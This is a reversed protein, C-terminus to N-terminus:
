ELFQVVLVRREATTVNYYHTQFIKPNTKNRMWNKEEQATKSEAVYLSLGLVNKYIEQRRIHVFEKIKLIEWYVTVKKTVSWMVVLWIVYCLEIKISYMQTNQLIFNIYIYHINENLWYFM